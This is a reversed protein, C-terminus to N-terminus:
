KRAFTNRFSFFLCWYAFENGGRFLISSMKPPFPSFLTFHIPGLSTLPPPVWGMHEGPGSANISTTLNGAKM